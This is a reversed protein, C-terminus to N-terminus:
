ARAARRRYYDALVAVVIVLGTILRKVPEQAGSQALGTNLV